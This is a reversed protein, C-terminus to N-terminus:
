PLPYAAYHKPASQILVGRGSFVGMSKCHSSLVKHRGMVGEHTVPVERFKCTVPVLILDQVLEIKPWIPCDAKSNSARSRRFM